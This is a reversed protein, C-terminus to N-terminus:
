AIRGAAQVSNAITELVQALWRLVALEIAEVSSAEHLKFLEFSMAPENRSLCTLNM